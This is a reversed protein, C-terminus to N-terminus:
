PSGPRATEESFESTVVSEVAPFPAFIETHVLRQPPVIERYVGYFAPYDGEPGRGVCRRAGGPRLDIECVPV